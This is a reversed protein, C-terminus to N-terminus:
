RNRYCVSKEMSLATVKMEKYLETYSKEKEEEGSKGKGRSDEPFLNVDDFNRDM